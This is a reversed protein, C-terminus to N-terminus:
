PVAEQPDSFVSHNPGTHCARCHTPTTHPNTHSHNNRSSGAAPDSPDSILSTGPTEPRCSPSRRTRSGTPTGGRTRGRGGRRNEPSGGRSSRKRAERAPLAKTPPLRQRLPAQLTPRLSPFPPLGTGELRLPPRLPGFLELPRYAACAATPDPAFGWRFQFSYNPSGPLEPPNPQRPPPGTRQSADEVGGTGWTAVGPGVPLWSGVDRRRPRGAVLVGSM